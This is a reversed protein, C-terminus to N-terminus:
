KTQGVAYGSNALYNSFEKLTFKEPISGVNKQLNDRNRPQNRMPLHKLKALVQKIPNDLIVIDGRSFTPVLQTEVYARFSDGNVPGGLVWPADVRDERLAVMFTSTVWYGFPASGHKPSMSTKMWTVDIFVQMRPGAWGQLWKQGECPDSKCARNVSNALGTRFGRWPSQWVPRSGIWSRGALKPTRRAWGARGSRDRTWIAGVWKIVSSAAVQLQKAVRRCSEGTMLKKVAHMRLDDSYPRPM